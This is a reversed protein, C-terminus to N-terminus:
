VGKMEIIICGGTGYYKATDNETVVISDDKYIIGSMADCVLKKLNDMLDPRTNKYFIEGARISEMRGKIKHFAKLPPYVFHMKTIHVENLFMEHDPLLKRIQRKYDETRKKMEAPQYHHGTKTSRVSQKPMPIGFLCLSIKRFRPQSFDVQVYQASVLPNGKEDKEIVVKESLPIGYPLKKKWVGPSVEVMGMKSLESTTFNTKSM